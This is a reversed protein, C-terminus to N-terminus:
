KMIIVKKCVRIPVGESYCFTKKKYILCFCDAYIKYYILAGKSCQRVFWLSCIDLFYNKLFDVFVIEINVNM